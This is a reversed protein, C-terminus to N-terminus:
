RAVEEVRSGHRKAVMVWQEDNWRRRWLVVNGHVRGCRSGTAQEPIRAKDTSACADRDCVVMDHHWRRCGSGCNRGRGSTCGASMWTWVGHARRPHLQGPEGRAYVQGEHCRYARVRSRNATSGSIMVRTSTVHAQSRSVGCGMTHTHGTIVVDYGHLRGWECGQARLTAPGHGVRRYSTATWGSRVGSSGGRRTTEGPRDWLWARDLDRGTGMAVRRQRRGGLVTPVSPWPADGPSSARRSSRCSGCRRIDWIWCAVTSKDNGGLARRPQRPHQRGETTQQGYASRKGSETMTLGRCPLAYVHVRGSSTCAHMATRAYSGSCGREDVDPDPIHTDSIAANRLDM